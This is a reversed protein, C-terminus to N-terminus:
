WIPTESIVGFYSGRGYQSEAIQIAAASSMARITIDTWAGGTIRVRIVYERM